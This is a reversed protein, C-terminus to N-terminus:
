FTLGIICVVGHLKIIGVDILQDMVISVGAPEGVYPRLQKENRM